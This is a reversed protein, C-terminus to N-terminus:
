RWRSEAAMLIARMRELYIACQKLADQERLDGAEPADSFILGSTLGFGEPLEVYFKEIVGPAVEVQWGSGGLQDGAFFAKANAPRPLQKLQESSFREAYTYSTTGLNGEKLIETRLKYFFKLLPDRAMEESRPKYWEDFREVRSRLNEIINTVSRGFVVVNRLAILRRRPDRADKLAQEAIELAERARRLVLHKDNQPPTVQSM